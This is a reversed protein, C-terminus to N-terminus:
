DSPRTAVSYPATTPATEAIYNEKRGSSNEIQRIESEQNCERSQEGIYRIIPSLGFALIVLLGAVGIEGALPLKKAQKLKELEDEFM